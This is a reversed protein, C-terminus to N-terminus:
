LASDVEGPCVMGDKSFTSIIDALGVVMCVTFVLLDLESLDLALPIDDVNDVLLSLLLFFEWSGGMVRLLLVKDVFLFRFLVLLLCCSILTMDCSGRDDDNEDEDELDSLVFEFTTSPPEFFLSVVPAFPPSMLDIEHAETIVEGLDMEEFRDGSRCSRKGDPDGEEM